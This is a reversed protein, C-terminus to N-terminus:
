PFNKEATGGVHTECFDREIGDYNECGNEEISSAYFPFPQSQDEPLELLEPSVKGGPHAKPSQWPIIKPFFIMELDVAGRTFIRVYSKPSPGFVVLTM